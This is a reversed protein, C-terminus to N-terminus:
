LSVDWQADYVEFQPTFLIGCSLHGLKMVMRWWRLILVSCLGWCVTSYSITFRVISFVEIVGAVELKLLRICKLNKLKEDM